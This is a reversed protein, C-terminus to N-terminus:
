ISFSNKIELIVNRKKKTLTSKKLGYAFVCERLKSTFVFFNSHKKKKKETEEM